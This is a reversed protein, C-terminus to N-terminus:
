FVDTVLEGLHIYNQKAKKYTKIRFTDGDYEFLVGKPLKEGAIMKVVRNSNNLEQTFSAEILVCDVRKNFVKTSVKDGYKDKVTEVTFTDVYNNFYM